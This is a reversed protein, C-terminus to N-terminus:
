RFLQSAASVTASLTQGIPQSAASVTASLTQGITGQQEASALFFLVLAGLLFGGSISYTL